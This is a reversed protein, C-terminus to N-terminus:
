HFVELTLAKYFAMTQALLWSREGYMQLRETNSTALKKLNKDLKPLEFLKSEFGFHNRFVQYYM